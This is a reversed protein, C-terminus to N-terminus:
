TDSFVGFHRVRFPIPRTSLRIPVTAAGIGAVLHIVIITFGAEIQPRLATIRPIIFWAAILVAKDTLTYLRYVLMLDNQELFRHCLVVPSM